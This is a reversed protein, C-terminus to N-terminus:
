KNSNIIFSLDAPIYYASKMIKKDSKRFIIFYGNVKKYGCYIREGLKDPHTGKMYKEITIMAEDVTTCYKSLNSSMVRHFAQKWLKKSIGTFHILNNSVIALDVLGDLVEVEDKNKVAKKIEDLEEQMLALALEIKEIEDLKFTPPKSNGAIELWDKVKDSYM